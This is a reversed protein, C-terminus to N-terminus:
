LSGKICCHWHSLTVRSYVDPCCLWVKNDDLRWYALLEWCCLLWAACVVLVSQTWEVGVGHVSMMM